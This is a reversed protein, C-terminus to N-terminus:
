KPLVNWDYSNRYLEVTPKGEWDGSVYKKGFTIIHKLDEEKLITFFQRDEEWGLVLLLEAGQNLYSKLLNLKLRFRFLDKKIVKVELPKGDVVFDADDRVNSVDIYNGDNDVGNDIINLDKGYKDKYFKAYRDIVLKEDKHARKIDVKFQELTRGSLRKYQAKDKGEHEKEILHENRIDMNVCGM